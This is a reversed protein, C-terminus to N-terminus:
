IIEYDSYSYFDENDENTGRDHVLRAAGKKRMWEWIKWASKSLSIGSRFRLQRASFYKVLELYAAKGYGQDRNNTDTLGIDYLYAEGYPVLVVVTATLVPEEEADHRSVDFYLFEQREEPSSGEETEQAALVFSVEPLRREPDLLKEYAEPPRLPPKEPTRLDEPGPM